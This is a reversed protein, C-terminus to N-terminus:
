VKDLPWEPSVGKLRLIVRRRIEEPTQGAQARSHVEVVVKKTLKKKM